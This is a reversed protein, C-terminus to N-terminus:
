NASKLLPALLTMLYTRKPPDISKGRLTAEIKAAFQNVSKPRAHTSLYDQGEALIAARDHVPKRGARSRKVPEPWIALLDDWVFEFRYITCEECHLGDVCRISNAEVNFATTRTYEEDFITFLRRSLPEIMNEGNASVVYGRARLRGDALAHRLLAAQDGM